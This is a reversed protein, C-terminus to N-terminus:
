FDETYLLNLSKLRQDRYSLHLTTQTQFFSQQTYLCHHLIHNHSYANELLVDWNQYKAM